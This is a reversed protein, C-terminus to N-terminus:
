YMVNENSLLLLLTYKTGLNTQKKTKKEPKSQNLHSKEKKPKQKERTYTKRVIKMSYSGAGHIKTSKGKM